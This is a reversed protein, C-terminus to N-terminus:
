PHREQAAQIAFRLRLFDAPTTQINRMWIDAMKAPDLKAQQIQAKKGKKGKEDFKVQDPPVDPSIEQEEDTDKKKAKPILSQVLELNEQAERWPHRRILAQQYVEVAEPYRGLHALVNGQNYWAEASDRLAFANLAGDDDGARDLALGKWIPDEYRGAAKQYEGREFYYRGQQDHTLWLDLWSFRADGNAPPLVFIIALATSTWRVTWGKRFWFVAIAAIPITLWYGENIWRTKNVRQQVV